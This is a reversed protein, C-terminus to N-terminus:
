GNRRIRVRISDDQQVKEEVIGFNRKKLETVLKHYAFQQVVKGSVQQGIQELKKKSANGSVCLKCAGRADRTFEVTVGDKEIVMKSEEGISGGVIESNALDTQVRNPGAVVQEEKPKTAVAFGLSAAASVIASSIVPWSAILIPTLVCVASM